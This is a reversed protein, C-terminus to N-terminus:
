AARVASGRDSKAPETVGAAWAEPALRGEVLAALRELAPARLRADRALAALLPVCDVAEVAHGLLPPIQQSPVGQGILEGARRNRSGAALVTGVLDGAGALGSFTEPRAGWRLALADIEAFLKGAAAGAANPGAGAAAAAALVASNKAGGALAVGTV